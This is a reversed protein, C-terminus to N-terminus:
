EYLTKSPPCWGVVFDLTDIIADYRTEDADSDHQERFGDLLATLDHQAMGEDRLQKAVSLLTSFPEPASLAQEVRDSPSPPHM